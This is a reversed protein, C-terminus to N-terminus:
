VPTIRNSESQVLSRFRIPFAVRRYAVFIQALNGQFSYTYYFNPIAGSTYTTEVVSSDIVSVLNGQTNNFASNLTNNGLNLGSIYMTYTQGGTGDVSPPVGGLGSDAFRDVAVTDTNNNITFAFKFISGGVTTRYVNRALTGVDGVPINSLTASDGAISATTSPAPIGGITEGLGNIFTILWQYQGPASASLGGGGPTITVTPAVPSPIPRTLILGHQAIQPIPGGTGNFVPPNVNGTSNVGPVAGSVIAADSLIDNFVTTTNDNIEGAFYFVNGNATTRYIRRTTLARVNVPPGGPPGQDASWIDIPINSLNGANGPAATLVISPIGADTEGSISVVLTNLDVKRTVFTVLWRYNGASLAGGGGVAVSPATPAVIYDVQQDNYANVLLFRAPNTNRLPVVTYADQQFPYGGFPTNFQFTLTSISIFPTRFVFKPKIPTMQYAVGSPEADLEWHFRTQNAGYVAQTSMEQILLTNRKFFLTQPRPLSFPFNDVNPVFFDGIEMEIISDIPKGNNLIVVSFILQGNSINSSPDKFRSDCYLYTDVIGWDTHITVPTLARQLGGAEGKGGASYGSGGRYGGASGSAAVAANGPGFREYGDPYDPKVIEKMLMAKIDIGEQRMQPRKVNAYPTVGEQRRNSM